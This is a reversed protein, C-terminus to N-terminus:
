GAIRKAIESAVKSDFQGSYSEKLAKMATGMNLSPNASKLDTVIKELEAASLQKPLFSEIAAVEEKLKPLMDPRNAKEAFEIEEKRKKLERKLVELIGAAPLEDVKQAVEDYQVASLVSRITEVRVKDGAKMASKLADKLQAKM